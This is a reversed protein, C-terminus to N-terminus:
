LFIGDAATYNFQIKKGGPSDIDRNNDFLKKNRNFDQRKPRWQNRFIEFVM